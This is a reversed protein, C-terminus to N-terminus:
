QAADASDAPRRSRGGAPTAALRVAVAVLVIGVALALSVPEDLLVVGLVAALIPVAFLWTSVVSAEGRRMLMSWLMWAMASGCTGAFVICLVFKTTLAPFPEAIAAVAVLLPAGVFHQGVVLPVIPEDVASTILAGVTWSVAAALLLLVGGASATASQHLGVVAVGAFGLLAAVIRRATLREGLVPGSAVVVLVPQLYVIAAAPGAAVTRLGAVQLGIFLFQNTLGLALVIWIGRRSLRRLQPALLSLTVAAVTLRGAAVWLPPAVELALRQVIFMLGWAVCLVTAVVRTDELRGLWPARTLASTGGARTV